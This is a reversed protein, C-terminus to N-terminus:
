RRGENVATALALLAPDKLTGPHVLMHKVASLRRGLEPNRTGARQIQALADRERQLKVPVRAGTKLDSQIQDTGASMLWGANVIVRQLDFFETAALNLDPGSSLYESLCSVQLAASTIGQGYIPNFSAVSDGLSILRAPFHTLSSYNRRRGDAQHYTRVQHTVKGGAAKAFIPPLSACALRFDEMSKPVANNGAGMVMVLWQNNEIVQIHAARLEGPGPHSAVAAATAIEEGTAHGRREFCATAYSVGSPVREMSPREFGDARLWSSLKSARGMADVVFDAPIVRDGCRVGNIRGDAEYTLGTAHGSSLWVNPRTRVRDRIRAELFPRSGLLWKERGFTEQQHGDVFLAQQDWGALYGGRAQANFAFGPMWREIQLRGGELLLHGQVDQPVGHRSLGGLGLEDRDLVIVLRSYDSLVRAALLGAISGGLVCVAEFLIPRRSPVEVQSLRSFVDIDPQNVM